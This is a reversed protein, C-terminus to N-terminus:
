LLLYLLVHFSLALGMCIFDEKNMYQLHLVANGEVIFYEQSNWASCFYRHFYHSWSVAWIILQNIYDPDSVLTVVPLIVSSVLIEVVAALLPANSFDEPPLIYYLIIEALDSLYDTFTLSFICLIAFVTLLILILWNFTIITDKPM